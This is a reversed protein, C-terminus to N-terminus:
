FPVIQSPAEERVRAWDQPTLDHPERGPFMEALIRFWEKELAAQDLKKAAETAAFAAWAEEMTCGPGAAPVAPPPVPPPSPKPSTAKPPRVTQGGSYARLKGGLRNRIAKAKEGDARTVGGGGSSGYPNLWRVKLRRQGEYEEFETTIQVPHDDLDADQLWFPDVGDWGFAAKLADITFTNLSGDRKELYFWGTIHEPPCPAFAGDPQREEFVEFKAIFTVLQNPGTEDVGREVARAHFVGERALQPM